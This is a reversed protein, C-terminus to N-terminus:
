FSTFDVFVCLSIFMLYVTFPLAIPVFRLDFSLKFPFREVKIFRPKLFIELLWVKVYDTLSLYM